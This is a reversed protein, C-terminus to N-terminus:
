SERADASASTSRPQIGRVLRRVLVALSVALLLGMGVSCRIVWILVGQLPGDSDRSEIWQIWGAEFEDWTVGLARQMAADPPEGEHFAAILGQLGEDGWTEM